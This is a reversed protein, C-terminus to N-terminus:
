ELQDFVTFNNRQKWIHAILIDVRITLARTQIFIDVKTGGYLFCFKSDTFKSDLVNVQFTLKPAEM